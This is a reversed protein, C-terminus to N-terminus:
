ENPEISEDQIHMVDGYEDPECAAPIEDGDSPPHWGGAAAIEDGMAYTTGAYTLTQETADWTVLSRPFVPLTRAEGGDWESVVYVCGDSLALRGELLADNGGSAPAWDWTAVPGFDPTPGGGAQFPACATAMLTIMALM